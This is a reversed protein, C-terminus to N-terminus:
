PNSFNRELAPTVAVTLSNVKTITATVLIHQALDDGIAVVTIDADTDPTRGGQNNNTYDFTSQINGSIATFDMDTGTEDDVIIAGNSGFEDGSSPTADPDDFYAM